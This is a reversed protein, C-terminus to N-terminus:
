MGIKGHKPYSLSSLHLEKNTADWNKPYVEPKQVLVYYIISINHIYYKVYLINIHMYIILIYIYIYKYKCICLIYIYIIYTYM